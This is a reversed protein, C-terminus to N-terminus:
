ARSEENSLEVTPSFAFVVLEGALAFIVFLHFSALRHSLPMQISQASPLYEEGSQEDVSSAPYPLRSSSSDMDVEDGSISCGTPSPAFNGGEVSSISAFSDESIEDFCSVFSASKDSTEQFYSAHADVGMNVDVVRAKKAITLDEAAVAAQAYAM